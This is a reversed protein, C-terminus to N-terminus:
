AVYHCTPVPGSQHVAAEKWDFRMRPRNQIEVGGDLAGEPPCRKSAGCTMSFPPRLEGCCRRKSKSEEM